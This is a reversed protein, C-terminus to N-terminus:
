RPLNLDDYVAALLQQYGEGSFADPDTRKIARALENAAGTAEELTNLRREVDEPAESDGYKELKRALNYMYQRVAAHDCYYATLADNALAYAFGQYGKEFNSTAM